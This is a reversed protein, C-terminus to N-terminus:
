KRVLRITCRDAKKRSIIVGNTCRFMIARSRKGSYDPSSFAYCRTFSLLVGLAASRKVHVSKDARLNGNCSYPEAKITCRQTSPVRAFGYVYRDVTLPSSKAVTACNGRSIYSVTKRFPERRFREGNFQRFFFVTALHAPVNFFTLRKKGKIRFSCKKREPSFVGTRDLIILNYYM